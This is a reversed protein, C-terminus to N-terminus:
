YLLVSQDRKFETLALVLVDFGDHLKLAADLFYPYSLVRPAYGASDQAPSSIATVSSPAASVSSARIPILISRCAISFLSRIRPCPLRYLARGNTSGRDFISFDLVCVPTPEKGADRRNGESRRRAGSKKRILDTM